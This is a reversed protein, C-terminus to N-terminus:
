IQIITLSLLPFHEFCVGALGVIFRNAYLPWVGWDACLPTLATTVTSVILAIATTSVGGFWEALFGAPFATIISGM